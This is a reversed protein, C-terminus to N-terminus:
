PPDIRIAPTLLNVPVGTGLVLLWYSCYCYDHYRGVDVHYETHTLCQGLRRVSIM